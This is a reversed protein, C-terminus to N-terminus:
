EGNEGCEAQAPMKNRAFHHRYAASRLLQKECKAQEIDNVSKFIVTIMKMLVTEAQKM